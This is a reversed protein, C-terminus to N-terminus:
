GNYVGTIQNRVMMKYNNKRSLEHAKYEASEIAKYLQQFFVTDSKLIKNVMIKSMNEFYNFVVDFFEKKTIIATENLDNFRIEVNTRSEKLKNLITENM